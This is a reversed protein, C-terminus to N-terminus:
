LKHLKEDVIYYIEKIRKSKSNRLYSEYSSVLSKKHFVEKHHYYFVISEVRKKNADKIDNLINNEGVGEVGKIDIRINNLIGDHMKVKYESKESGLIIKNGEKYLVELSIKEYDGRPIGFKGIKPDFQHQKHIACLAGNKPNFRVYSYHEDKLLREYEKRNAEIRDILVKDM